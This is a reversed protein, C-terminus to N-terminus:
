GLVNRLAPELESFRFNFGHASLREPVVRQGDLVMTAMEGLALQLAFGPTPVIAPRSLVQGLARAFGANTVPYPATLNFPGRATEHEILFAIAAVEDAIHIGPTGSIGM